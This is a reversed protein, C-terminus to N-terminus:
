TLFFYPGADGVMAVSAFFSWGIMMLRTL